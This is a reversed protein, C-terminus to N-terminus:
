QATAKKKPIHIKKKSNDLYDQIMEGTFKKQGSIQLFSMQGRKLIKYLTNESIELKECVWQKSYIKNRDIM